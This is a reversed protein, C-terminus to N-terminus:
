PFGVLAREIPEWRSGSVPTVATETVMYPSSGSEEADHDVM